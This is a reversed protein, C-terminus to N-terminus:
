FILGTVITAKMIFSLGQEESIHIDLKPSNPYVLKVYDSLALYFWSVMELEDPVEKIGRVTSIEITLRPGLFGPSTESRIEDVVFMFGKIPYANLNKEISKADM